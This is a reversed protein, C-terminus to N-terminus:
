FEASLGLGKLGMELHVGSRHRLSLTGNTRDHRINLKPLLEREKIIVQPYRLLPKSVAQLRMGSFDTQTQAHAIGSALTFAVMLMLCKM